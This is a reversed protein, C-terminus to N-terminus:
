SLLNKLYSIFHIVNKPLAANFSYLFGINNKVTNEIRITKFRSDPFIRFHWDDTFGILKSSFVMEALEEHDKTSFLVNPTGYPLLMDNLTGILLEDDFHVLPLKAINELTMSDEKAFYSDEAVKVMTEFSMTQNFVVDQQHTIYEMDSDSLNTLFVPYTKGDASVNSVEEFMDPHYRESLVINYTECAQKIDESFRSLVNRFMFPTVFITFAQKDNKCRSEVSVARLEQYDGVLRKAVTAFSQGTETLYLRNADRTFLTINFERELNQIAKSLGQQSIYIRRASTTISQTKAVDLFYYIHDIKM